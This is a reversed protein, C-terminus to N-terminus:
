MPNEILLAIGQGGGICASAIGYRAHRNKLELALSLVLRTGTAGLPHGFAIAGGNVNVQERDLGLEKEVALYQAAFAENIEFLDIQELSLDARKLAAKIAEVPGIGMIKPECGVIGWSIIKALATRDESRAKEETTIIVAAAGDCIGCANGATVTGDKTFAPPLAALEDLTTNPRPHEDNELVGEIAIIEESLRGSDAAAGARVQSQLAFADAQERTIGYQAALNEATLAMSTNSYTDTLASWLSDELKGEGLALGWRAGRVVHPAQSMNETGGALVLAAEDLLLLQAGNIISQIGSGCLRNLTLAPVAAPLGARLGVHRALYIADSSTQLANGFIVHDIDAALVNAREIAALAAFFGLETATFSKLAGGFKGFPTRAGALIVISKQASDVMISPIMPSRPTAIQGSSLAPEDSEYRTM